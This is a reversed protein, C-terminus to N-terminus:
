RCNYATMSLRLIIMVHITTVTATINANGNTTARNAKSHEPIAKHMINNKMTLGIYEAMSPNRQLLSICLIHFKGKTDDIAKRAPVHSNKSMISTHNIM